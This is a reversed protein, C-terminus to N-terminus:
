KIFNSYLQVISSSRNRPALLIPSGRPWNLLSIFSTDTKFKILRSELAIMIKLRQGGM